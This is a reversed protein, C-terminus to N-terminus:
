GMSEMSYVHDICGNEIDWQLMEDASMFSQLSEFDIVNMVIISKNEDLKAVNYNDVFKSWNPKTREFMDLFDDYTCTFTSIICTNM